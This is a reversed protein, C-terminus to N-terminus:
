PIDTPKYVTLESVRDFDGDRTAIFRIARELCAAVVLSDNTLLGFRQRVQQATRHRTEDCSLIVLNLKFARETLEWYRRLRRIANRKAKLAYAAPKSILGTDVAEKLMLRHCVEAIAEASTVGAVEEARCREMLELCQESEALLGYILINADLFVLRGSPLAPLPQPM